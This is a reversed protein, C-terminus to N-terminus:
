SLVRYTVKAVSGQQGDQIAVVDAFEEGAAQAANHAVTEFYFQREHESRWLVPTLPVPHEIERHHM